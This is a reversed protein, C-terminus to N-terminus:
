LQKANELASILCGLRGLFSHHMDLTVLSKFHANRLILM